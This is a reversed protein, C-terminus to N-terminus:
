TFCNKCLLHMRNCTGKNINDKFSAHSVVVCGKFNYDCTCVLKNFIVKDYMWMWFIQGQTLASSDHLGIHVFIWYKTHGSRANYAVHLRRPMSLVLTSLKQDPIDRWIDVVAQTLEAVNSPPPTWTTWDVHSKRGSIRTRTWIRQCLLGIWISCMGLIWYTFLWTLWLVASYLQHCVRVCHDKTHFMTYNPDFYIPDFHNNFIFSSLMAIHFSYFFFYM